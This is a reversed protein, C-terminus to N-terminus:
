SASRGRRRVILLGLAVGVVVAIGGAIVYGGTASLLGDRGDSVLELDFYLPNAGWSNDISKGPTISWDGWGTFTDTRHVFTDNVYALVIFASDEHLIKQCNHVLALRASDNLEQISRTFNEEYCPNHYYNDNWGNWARDSHRFLQHVPDPDAVENWLTMEFEMSVPCMTNIINLDDLIRSTVLIGINGWDESIVDFIARDEEHTRFLTMVFELSTGEEVLGEEVAWCTESAVRIDPSAETLVYGSSELLDNASQIDYSYSDEDAPEFHWEGASGSIMTEGEDAFGCYVDSSSVISTRDTALAMAQRVAPDLRAANGPITSRMDIDIVKMRQDCRPAICTRLTQTDDGMVGEYVSKFDAADFRAIDLSGNELAATMSDRDDFFHLELRDFGVAMARDDQWHYDPNRVLTLQDGDLWEQYINETAMFPGTGVIPPDSDEFVGLWEFAINFANPDQFKHKPLIPIYMSDAFSCAMSEGTERDYFHVRVTNENVVECTQIFYAYPQYAWMESYSDANLNLTFAIDEVTLPEGDHWRANSTITFEWASGYPEYEGSVRWDLALNPHPEMDSGVSTLGDYVLGYFISSVDTLGMTPSLSDVNDIFGIRLVGDDDTDFGAQSYACPSSTAILTIM